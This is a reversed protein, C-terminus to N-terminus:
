PEQGGSWGANGAMEEGWGSYPVVAVKREAAREVVIVV